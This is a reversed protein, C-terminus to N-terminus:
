YTLIADMGFTTQSADGQENIPTGNFLGNGDKDWDWRVEPRFVLNAHPRYNLGLTLDYIDNNDGFGGPRDISDVNYWEFRGGYSLCDNVRYLLYQTIAIADRLDNGNQDESRIYDNWFVYKLRETLQVDFIASQMYGHENRGLGVVGRNEDFDENFRGFTHTLTFRVDESMRVSAGGLYADGNDNFGSDWGLTYGSWLTVDDSPTLTALAGTHTFPRSNFMTYAHSYFFNDPAPVVEYGLITFFHGVKVSLDGYAVEGYLQPLAHGYGDRGGRDWGTDYGNDDGFAQTDQADTGYVYDIRGGFDLGCSGDAINELYFWQQQLQVEDPRTNLRGFSDQSHYGLQTWGGANWDCHEGFLRFPDGLCCDGLGLGLGGGGYLSDCGGDFCTNGCAGADGLSECGCVPQGCDCGVAYSSSAIGGHHSRADGAQASSCLGTVVAALLALKSLKM